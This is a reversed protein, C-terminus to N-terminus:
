SAEIVVALRIGVFSLWVFASLSIITLLACIALYMGNWTTLTASYLAKIGISGTLGFTSQIIADYAFILGLENKECCSLQISRIVAYALLDLSFFTVGIWVSYPLIDIPVIIYGIAACSIAVLGITHEQPKIFRKCVYLILPCSITKLIASYSNFVSYLTLSFGKSKVLYLFSNGSAGASAMFICTYSVFVLNLRLRKSGERKKFVCKFADLIHALKVVNRWNNSLNAETTVDTLLILVPLPLLSIGANIYAMSPLGISDIIPGTILNGIFVGVLISAECLGMVLSRNDVRAVLGCYSFSTM